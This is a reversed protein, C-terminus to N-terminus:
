DDRGSEESGGDDHAHVPDDLYAGTVSEHENRRFRGRWRSVMM